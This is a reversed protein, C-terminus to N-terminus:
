EAGPERPAPPRELPAFTRPPGPARIVQSGRKSFRRVEVTHRGTPAPWLGASRTCFVAVAAEARGARRSRCAGRGAGAGSLIWVLFVLQQTYGGTGCAPPQRQPDSQEVSWVLRGVTTWAQPALDPVRLPGQLSTPRAVLAGRRPPCHHGGGSVLALLDEPGRTPHSTGGGRRIRAALKGGERM